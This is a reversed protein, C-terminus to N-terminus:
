ISRSKSRQRCVVAFYCRVKAILPLFAWRGHSSPLQPEGEEGMITKEVFAKDVFWKRVNVKFRWSM